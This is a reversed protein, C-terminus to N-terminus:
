CGTPVRRLVLMALNLAPMRSITYIGEANNPFLKAKTLEGLKNLTYPANDVRAPILVLLHNDRVRQRRIEGELKFPAKSNLIGEINDPLPCM